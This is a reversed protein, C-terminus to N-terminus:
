ATNADNTEDAAEEEEEEWVLEAGGTAILLKLRAVEAHLSGIEKQSDIFNRYLGRLEKNLELVERQLAVLEEFHGVDSVEKKETNLLNLPNNDKTNSGQTRGDSVKRGPEDGFVLWEVSVNFVRCIQAIVESNPLSLGEEYNRLTNPHLSIKSAFAHRTKNGRLIEIRKGISM